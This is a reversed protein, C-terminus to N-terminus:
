NQQITAVIANIIALAATPEADRIVFTLLLLKEGSKDLLVAQYHTTPLAATNTEGTIVDTTVYRLIAVPLGAEHLDYRISSNTVTIHPQAVLAASAFADTVANLYTSLTLDEAPTVAAVLTIAAGPQPVASPPWALALATDDEAMAGIAELDSALEPKTEQLSQLQQAWGNREPRLLSWPAPFTITFPALALLATQEIRGAPLPSPTPPTTLVTEPPPTPTPIAVPEAAPRSVTIALTCLLLLLTFFFFRNHM